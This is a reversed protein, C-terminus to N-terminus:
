NPFNDGVGSPHHCNRLFTKDDDDDEIGEDNDTDRNMNEKKM